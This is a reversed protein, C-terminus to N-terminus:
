VVEVPDLEVPDLRCLVAVTVDDGSGLQSAENLWMELGGAVTDLGEGRIMALLDSGVQLFGAEDRFSNAYGDTSLLILAPIKEPADEAPSLTQFGVRVDRWARPACLSTTQGAFLREDAPLPRSVEGTESVAIVDGDGLQLYLIFSEALLVASLTAGYALLPNAEVAQRAASGAQEELRELEAGSFPAALLHRHAAAQWRRVLAETAGEIAAFDTAVGQGELFSTAVEVATEVALQSGIHSRFCKASGHGDAIALVLPPGLGDDPLWRLADQNPLGARHHSAGRVSAGIARWCCRIGRGPGPTSRNTGEEAKEVPNLSPSSSV